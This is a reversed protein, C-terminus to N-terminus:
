VYLDMSIWGRYVEFGSEMLGAPFVTLEELPTRHLTGAAFANKQIELDYIAYPSSRKVRSLM